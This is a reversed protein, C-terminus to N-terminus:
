DNNSDIILEMLWEVEGVQISVRSSVGSMSSLRIKAFRITGCTPGLSTPFCRRILDYRGNKVGPKGSSGPAACLSIWVTLKVCPVTTPQVCKGCAGSQALIHCHICEVCTQYLDFVLVM